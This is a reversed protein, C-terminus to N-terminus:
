KSSEHACAHDQGEGQREDGGSGSGATGQCHGARGHIGARWRSGGATVRDTIRTKGRVGFRENQVTAGGRVPRESLRITRGGSPEGDVVDDENRLGAFGPDEDRCIPAGARHDDALERTGVAGGM